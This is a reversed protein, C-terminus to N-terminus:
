DNLGSHRLSSNSVMSFGAPYFVRCSSSSPGSIHCLHLSKWWPSIDRWTCDWGPDFSLEAIRVRASKRQCEVLWGGVEEETNRNSKWQVNWKSHYRFLRKLLQPAPPGRGKGVEVQGGEGVDTTKYFQSDEGKEKEMNVKVKGETFM